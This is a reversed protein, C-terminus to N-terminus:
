FGSLYKTRFEGEPLNMWDQAVANQDSMLAVVLAEFVAPNAQIEDLSVDSRAKTGFLFGLLMGLIGSQMEGDSLSPGSPGKRKLPVVEGEGEGSSDSNTRGGPFDLVDAEVLKSALEEKIIRKLQTKTIKM